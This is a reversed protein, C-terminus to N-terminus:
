VIDLDDRMPNDVRGLLISWDCFLSFFMSMFFVAFESSRKPFMCNFSDKSSQHM